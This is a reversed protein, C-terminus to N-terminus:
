LSRMLQWARANRFTNDISSGLPNDDLSLIPLCYVQKRKVCVVDIDHLGIDEIREKYFLPDFTKIFGDYGNVTYAVYYVPKPPEQSDLYGKIAFGVLAVVLLVLTVTFRKRPSQLKM